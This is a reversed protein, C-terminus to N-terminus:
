DVRWALELARRFDGPTGHYLAFFDDAKCPLEVVRGRDGFLKATEAAKGNADPDYAVYVRNFQKFRAAWPPQFGSKGMTGVNLIGHQDLVISKKEGETITIEPADAYVNDANFLTTGLGAMHPRYKDGNGDPRCIRHRINVLEGATFVPITWSPRGLHDTPCQWCFGLLYRDIAEDFIGQSHWYDRGAEDLCDHYALHDKCQAMRELASLRREHELLQRQTRKLEAEHRRLAVQDPTLTRQQDDDLWGEHNGPRCWFYGSSFVLFGDETAQHCIPCPGAAEDQTKIRLELGPWRQEALSIAEEITTACPM